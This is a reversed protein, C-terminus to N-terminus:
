PTSRLLNHTSGGPLPTSSIDERARSARARWTEATGATPDLPGANVLYRVVAPQTAPGFRRRMETLLPAFRRNFGVMLRDNGTTAVVELIRALQDDDLALPKEVFTAKGAELCQTVFDAHTRHRTVVFVADISDDDLLREVDTSAQTFGFRRQANAASLSTSTVVHRLEVDDRKSPSALADLLRLQRRRHFRFSRRKGGPDNPVCRGRSGPGVLVDGDARRPKTMSSSSASGELKGACVATSMPPM